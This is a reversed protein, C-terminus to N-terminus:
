LNNHLILHVGAKDYVGPFMQYSSLIRSVNCPHSGTGIVNYNYFPWQVHKHIQVKM